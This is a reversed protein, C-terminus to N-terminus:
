LKGERQLSELRKVEAEKVALEAALKADEETTEEKPAEATPEITKFLPDAPAMELPKSEQQDSPDEPAGSTVVIPIDYAPIPDAADTDKM